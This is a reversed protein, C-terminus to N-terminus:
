RLGLATFGGDVSLTQGTVYGAAPSAFFIAAGVLDEPVSNRGLLTADALRRAREADAFVKATLDTKVFGPAIANCTVNDYGSVPSYAESLARTLGMVGSKATAYPISDPFARHSQLSALTIIRGYRERKMNESMARTLMFPATQMLAFSRDFHDSTLQDAPQRFNVGANNILITPPIGTLFEAESVVDALQHYDCIDCPYAVARKAFLTATDDDDNNDDASSCGSGDSSSSSDAALQERIMKSTDELPRERRGLLVVSAGSRALGMALAAGIGTGGGTVLACRGALSFLDSLYSSPSSSFSSSSAPTTSLGRRPTHKISEKRASAAVVIRSSHCLGM